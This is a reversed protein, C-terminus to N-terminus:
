LTMLNRQGQPGPGALCAALRVKAKVMERRMWRTGCNKGSLSFPPISRRSRRGADDSATIGSRPIPCVATPIRVPEAEGRELYSSMARRAHATSFFSGHGAVKRRSRPSISRPCPCPSTCFFIETQVYSPRLRVSRAIAPQPRNRRPGLGPAIRPQTEQWIQVIARYAKTGIDRVEM